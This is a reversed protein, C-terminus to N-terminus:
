YETDAEMNKKRIRMSVVVLAILLTGVIENQTFPHIAMLNLVNRMTGIFIGGIVALSISGTGSGSLGIGGIICSAVCDLQYSDGQVASASSLRASLLLGSIASCFGCAAYAFMKLKLLNMGEQAIVIENNGLGRIHNSIPLRFLVITGIVAMVIMIINPIPVGLLKGNGIFTYVENKFPAITNGQTIMLAIGSAVQGVAYTCIFPPTKFKSILFGNLGGIATGVFISVVFGLWGPLGHMIMCVNIVGSLAIVGSISLDIGNIIMIFALGVVPICTYSSQKLVNMINDWTLFNPIFSSCLVILVIAVALFLMRQKNKQIYTRMGCRGTKKQVQFSIAVTLQMILPALPILYSKDPFSPLLM